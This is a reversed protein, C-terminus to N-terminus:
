SAEISGPWEDDLEKKKPAPPPPAHVKTFKRSFSELGRHKPTFKRSSEHVKSNAHENTLFFRERGAAPTERGIEPYERFQAAM